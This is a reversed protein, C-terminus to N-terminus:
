VRIIERHDASLKKTSYSIHLFINVGFGNRVQQFGLLQCPFLIGFPQRLGAESTTAVAAVCALVHGKHTKKGNLMVRLATCMDYVLSGKIRVMEGMVGEIRRIHVMIPM